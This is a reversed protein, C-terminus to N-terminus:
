KLMEFGVEVLCFDLATRLRFIELGDSNWWATYVDLLPHTGIMRSHKSQAVFDDLDVEFVV